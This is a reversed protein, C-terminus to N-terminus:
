ERGDFPNPRMRKGFVAGILVLGLAIDVAIIGILTLARQGLALGIVLVGTLITM